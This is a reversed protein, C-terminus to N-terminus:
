AVEKRWLKRRARMAFPCGAVSQCYSNGTESTM